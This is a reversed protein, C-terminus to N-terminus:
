IGYKEIIYNVEDETSDGLDNAVTKYSYHGLKRLGDGSNDNDCIVVIPRINKVIKLWKKTNTNVGNSLVAIASYGHHTLRCADFIDETLFLTNSFKWSELGWVSIFEKIRYTYYRGKADNCKKKESLPRYVTYGILQGSLNWLPFTAINENYDIWCEHISTDMFREQLHKEIDFM